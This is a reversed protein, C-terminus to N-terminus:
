PSWEPDRGMFAVLRTAADARKPVAVAPGFLGSSRLSEENPGVAASSVECLEPDLRPDVGLARALDWTHVLVEATLMPLLRDLHVERSGAARYSSRTAALDMASQIAPVTVEWRLVPDGKPRTPKTGLPRLLLVDHFGIVHEVVGRADWEPCPSSSAWHGEGLGVILSFGDCAKRHRAIVDDM